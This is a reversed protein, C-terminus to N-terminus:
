TLTSRIIDPSLPKSIFGKVFSFTQSRLKDKEDVSSTVIFVNISKSLQSRFKEFAELFDWGDIVPMNLDLLIVDPLAESNKANSELYELALEAETYSTYGEFLEHKAIMIQAIRQHIPDDDIIFVKSM